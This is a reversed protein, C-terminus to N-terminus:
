KKLTEEVRRKYEHPRFPVYLSYTCAVPKHNIKAPVWAPMEKVVRLVEEAFEPYTSQVIHPYLVAGEKDLTFECIVYGKANKALLTEPYKIHQLVYSQPSMSAFVPEEEIAQGDPLSGLLGTLFPGGYKPTKYEDPFNKARVQLDKILANAENLISVPSIEKEMTLLYVSECVLVLRAMLTGGPPSWKKGQRVRGQSDTAAFYYTTGDLGGSYGDLDQAQTTTIRFLEGLAQYLEKSIALCREIVQVKDSPGQWYSCTLTHSVLCYDGKRQEVCMAYEPSFSPIVVFRAYPQQRFGSQLLSFVNRYYEGLEGKYITFDGVPELYDTQASLSVSWLLALFINAIKRMFM